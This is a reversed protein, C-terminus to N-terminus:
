KDHVPIASIFHREVGLFLLYGCSVGFPVGVLPVILYQQLARFHLREGALCVLRLAPDHILYLSYSFHGVFVLPRWNLFVGVSRQLWSYGKQVLSVLLCFVCAAVLYDVVWVKAWFIVGVAHIWSIRNMSIRSHLLIVTLILALLAAFYRPWPHNQRIAEGYAAPTCCIQGGAMGLAFLAVFHIFSQQVPLIRGLLCTLVIGALATSLILTWRGWVRLIPLFLVPMLFDIQWEVGISWLPPDIKMIWADSWHHILFLHPWIARSSFAPLAESWYGKPAVALGPVLVM